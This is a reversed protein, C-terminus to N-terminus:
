TVVFNGTMITPHVDCRFFYTGPQTPANFTYTTTAPGTIPQGKFITQTASSDTYVSFTHPIGNDMNNFKVTVMSGAPVNIDSKNFQLNHASLAVTATGGTSTTNQFTTTANTRTTGQITVTVTAVVPPNLPTNNNNVLEVSFKHRGPALNTWNYISNASQVTTGTQNTIQRGLTTPATIDKFYILHGQGQVNRNGIHAIVSFFTYNSKISVMNTSITAGEKPEDIKLMPKAENERSENLVTVIVTHNRFNFARSQNMMPQNTNNMMQQTENMMEHQNELM